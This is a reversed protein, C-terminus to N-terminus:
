QNRSSEMYTVIKDQMKAIMEAYSRSKIIVGKRVFHPYPDQLMQMNPTLLVLADFGYGTYYTSVTDQTNVLENNENYTHVQTEQNISDGQTQSFEAILYNENLEPINKIVNLKEDLLAGKFQKNKINRSNDSYFYYVECYHFVSNFADVIAENEKQQEAKIRAAMEANKGELGNILNVKTKLRVLIAGENLAKFIVNPDNQAYSGFAVVVLIILVVIRKM